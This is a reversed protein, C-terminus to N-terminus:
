GGADTPCPQERNGRIRDVWHCRVISWSHVRMARRGKASRKVFIAAYHYPPLEIVQGLNLGAPEVAAVVDSPEMRMETKPGRPKGLITTVERPRRHWNIIAFRAGTKLVAVVSRALGLKDPVGHFTNAILVFDVPRKVLVAVAYADGEILECNTAGVAAIRAKALALMGRDIDIAIVYRSALALPATFLGDGCCLDIAEMESRIGLAAIVQKPEPWLTQWWDEDPMATAPFFGPLTTDNIVPQM